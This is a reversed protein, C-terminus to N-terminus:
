DLLPNYNPLILGYENEEEDNEGADYIEPDNDPIGSAPPMAAPTYGPDPPPPNGPEGGTNLSSPPTERTNYLDGDLIPNYSPITAGRSPASSNARNTPSQRNLPQRTTTTQRSNTSQRYAPRNAEQEMRLLEPLLDMQLEPMKLGGLLANDDILMTDFRMGELIQASATQGGGGHIDCFRTPQTGELFPLTVDSPCNPTKLLGSKTCITMDIIGTSPRVFDKLPLGQHIERMFDAWVPGALTSGTLNVGLSNGPKDFGFWIATTYYPSYGVTWADSWNQPTGTKGAMPMRFRKGQEDRFTFKAGWESPNYLTGEEVTKKLM